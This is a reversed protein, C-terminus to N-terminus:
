LNLYRSILEFCGSRLLNQFPRQRAKPVPYGDSRAKADFVGNQNINRGLNSGRDPDKTQIGASEMLLRVVEHVANPIPISQGNLNQLGTCGIEFGHNTLM